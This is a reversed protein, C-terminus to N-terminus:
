IIHDYNKYNELILCKLLSLKRGNIEFKRVGKSYSEINNDYFSSLKLTSFAFFHKKSGWISDIQVIYGIQHHIYSILKRRKIFITNEDLFIKRRGKLSVVIATIGLAKLLKLSNMPLFRIGDILLICDKVKMVIDRIMSTFEEESSYNFILSEEPYLDKNIQFGILISNQYRELIYNVLSTAEETNESVIYNIHNKPFKLIPQLYGPISFYETNIFGTSKPRTELKFLPEM